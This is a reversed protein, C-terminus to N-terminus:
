FFNNLKTFKTAVFFFTLCVFFNGGGRKQKKADPFFDPEPIFMGSKCCQYKPFWDDWSVRQSLNDAVCMSYRCGAACCATIAWVTYDSRPSINECAAVTVLEEDHIGGAAFM